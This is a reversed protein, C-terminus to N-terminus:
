WTPEEPPDDHGESKHPVLRNFPRTTSKATEKQHRKETAVEQRVLKERIATNTHEILVRKRENAIGSSDEERARKRVLKRTSMDVNEKMYEATGNQKYMTRANFTELTMNPFRRAAVRYTGLMGENRDNTSPMWALRKEEASATDIAGGKEFEETFRWWTTLAGRFFALLIPRLHPLQPMMNIVAYYAQPTDWIRGDLTGSRWPEGESEPQLIQDPAAIVSECFDIVRQHLPALDLLYHPLNRSPRSM